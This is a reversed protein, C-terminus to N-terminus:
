ESREVVRYDDIEGDGNLDLGEVVAYFQGATYDEVIEELDSFARVAAETGRSQIGAVLFVNESRDHPNPTKAIVGIEGESYSNEHTELKRYPFESSPFYAPFSENFEKAVLNTLVGGLIVMSELYSEQNIVDTDLKLAPSDKRSYNGLKYAIEAALHGDLARVQDPGHQEPSGVVIPGRLEREEVLPKLFRTVSSSSEPVPFSEGVDGLTFAFGQSTPRYFTAEGGSLNEVRDEEVLDAEQLRDFHYYMKQKSCDFEQAMKAPYSPQDSLKILIEVRIPDSLASFQEQSMEASEIIRDDRVIGVM